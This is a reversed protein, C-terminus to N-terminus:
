IKQRKTHRGVFCQQHYLQKSIAGRGREQNGFVYEKCFFCTGKWALAPDLCTKHFVDGQVNTVKDLNDQVVGGCKLCIVPTEKAIEEPLQSASTVSTETPSHSITSPSSFRSSTPLLETSSPASETKVFAHSRKGLVQSKKSASTDRQPAQSFADEDNEYVNKFKTKLVIIQYEIEEHYEEDIKELKRLGFMLSTVEQKLNCVTKKVLENQEKESGKQEKQEKESGNYRKFFDEFINEIVKVDSNDDGPCRMGSLQCNAICVKRKKLMKVLKRRPKKGISMKEHTSTENESQRSKEALEKVSFTRPIRNKKKKYAKKEKESKEQMDESVEKIHEMTCTDSFISFEKVSVTPCISVSVLRLQLKEGMGLSKHRIETKKLISGPRMPTTHSETM